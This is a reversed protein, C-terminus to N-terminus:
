WVVQVPYRAFVTDVSALPAREVISQAILLRDFPDKHHLPLSDLALVHALEVPLIQVGNTQQQTQVMSALPVALTLKGLQAKIQLEWVSVISLLLVTAPNECLARVRESLREPENAWWLFSHTDFLLM